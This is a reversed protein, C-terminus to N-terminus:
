FCLMTAQNYEAAKKVKAEIKKSYDVDYDFDQIGPSFKIQAVPQTFVVTNVKDYNKLLEVEFFIPAFNAETADDPVKTDISIEKTENTKNTIPKNFSLNSNKPFCALPSFTIQSIWGSFCVSLGAITYRTAWESLIETFRGLNLMGNIIEIIKPKKSTIKNAIAELIM